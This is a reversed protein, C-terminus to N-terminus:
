SQQLESFPLELRRRFALRCPRYPHCPRCPSRLGLWGIARFSPAPRFTRGKKTGRVGKRWSQCGGTNRHSSHHRLRKQGAKCHSGDAPHRVLSGFERNVVAGLARARHEPCLSVCVIAVPVTLHNLVVLPKPKMMGDSPPLSTNTCMVATCAAPM